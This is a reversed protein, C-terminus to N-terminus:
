ASLIKLFSQAFIMGDDIAELACDDIFNEYSQIEIRPSLLNARDRRLHELIVRIGPVIFIPAPKETSPSAVASAKALKRQARKESASAKAFYAKTEESIHNGRMRCYARRFNPPLGDNRVKEEKEKAQEECRLLKTYVKERTKPM